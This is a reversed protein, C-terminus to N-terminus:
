VPTNPFRAQCEEVLEKLLELYRSCCYLLDDEGLEPLSCEIADLRAEMSRAERSPPDQATITIRYQQLKPSRQAPREEATPPAEGVPSAHLRIAIRLPQAKQSRNRIEAFQRLLPRDELAPERARYWAEWGNSRGYESRMVWAVSRAASVFASVYYVLPRGEDALVDFYHERVKELFYAAEDLKQRTRSM